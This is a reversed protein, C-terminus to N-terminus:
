EGLLTIGGQANQFSVVTGGRHDMVAINTVGEAKLLESIVTNYKGPNEQEIAMKLLTTILSHLKKEDM